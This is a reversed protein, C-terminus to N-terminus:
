HAAVRRARGALEARLADLEPAGFLHRLELIRPHRRDEERLGDWLRPAIVHLRGSAAVDDRAPLGIGIEIEAPLSLRHRLDAAQQRGTGIDREHLVIVAESDPSRLAREIDEVADDDLRLSAFLMEGARDPWRRRMEAHHFWTGVLPLRPPEEGADLRWPIAEIGLERELQSALVRCQHDNCEVLVVSTPRAQSPPAARGWLVRALTDADVGFRARAEAAVEAAFRVLDQSTADAGAATVRTGDGRVPDVLGQRALERYARRVTHYSVGWRDAADRLSPLLCGVPLSGTGIRWRVAQTIQHYLPTPSAPDLHLDLRVPGSRRETASGAEAIDATM